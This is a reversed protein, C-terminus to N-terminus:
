TVPPRATPPIPTPCNCVNGHSSTYVFWAGCKPCAARGESVLEILGDPHHSLAVAAWTKVDDRVSAADPDMGYTEAWEVPNVAVTLDIEVKM